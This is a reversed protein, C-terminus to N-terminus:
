SLYWSKTHKYPSLLEMESTMLTTEKSSLVTNSIKALAMKPVPTNAKSDPYMDYLKEMKSPLPSAISANINRQNPNWCLHPRNYLSFSHIMTYSKVGMGFINLHYKFTHEIRNGIEKLAKM